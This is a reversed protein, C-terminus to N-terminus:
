PPAPPWVRRLAERVKRARQLPDLGELSRCRSLPEVTVPGDYGHRALAALISGVRSSSFEGPLSREVDRLTHRDGRAPDALHVWVVSSPGWALADALEEGAAFLHFSDVLVGVNPRADRLPAFRRALEAHTGVLPVGGGTRESRPGIIELALRSGHDNLIRAVRDLRDIQRATEREIVRERAAENELTADDVPESEFRVWTGTRFLGLRAATAAHLSLRALDAEFTEGDNRWNVPLPWAGGRLGLDDMRLRLDGVNVGSELIDRVLLDVGDFEARAATEIADEATQDLGAARANWCGYVNPESIMRHIVFHASGGVAGVM